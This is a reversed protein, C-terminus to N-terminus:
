SVGTKARIKKAAFTVTFATGEQSSRLGVLGGYREALSQVAYLGMGQHEGKKTTFGRTFIRQRLEPPILPGPNSVRVQYTAGECAMEVKVWRGPAELGAVADLANDILNGIIRNFDVAEVPLRGFGPDVKILLKVGRAAALGEKAHLLASIEPRNLSLVEGAQKVEGYVEEIYERAAEAQGTKILGYVAQVHNIFDHRQSRVTAILDNINDTYRKQAQYEVEQHVKNVVYRLVIFLSLTYFVVFVSGLTHVVNPPMAPFAGTQYAYQASNLVALIIAQLLIIFIILHHYRRSSM